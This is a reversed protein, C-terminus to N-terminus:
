ANDVDNLEEDLYILAKVLKDRCANFYRRRGEPWTKASKAYCNATGIHDLIAKENKNLETTSTQKHVINILTETM